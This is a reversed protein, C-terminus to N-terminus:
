LLGVDDCVVVGHAFFHFSQFAHANFKVGFRGRIEVHNPMEQRKASNLTAPVHCMYYECILLNHFSFEQLYVFTVYNM